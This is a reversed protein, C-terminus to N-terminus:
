EYQKEVERIKDVLAAADGMRVFYIGKMTEDYLEHTAANDGFIMPKKMATYIYAKGPITRKAKNISANFHGALCLDAYSIYEALQEQSLWDHYEIRDSEPKQFKDQIPGVVVFYFRKDDKLSEMAELIVDLGQLPLVSGFYLVTFHNKMREPKEQPRPYYITEDAQLYLVHLKEPILGFEEVFYKGHEKTDSIVKDAGQITKCDLWKLLKGALSGQQFRKRDFVFTDYMSIFFDIIVEKKRMKWKFFPIVLQPAFGVFISDYKKFSGFLIRSYVYLLRKPYSKARSGIITVSEAQKQIMAIEQTNRLYDLNKTTVFLVNKQQFWDM